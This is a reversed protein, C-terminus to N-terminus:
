TPLAPCGLLRALWEFRDPPWFAGCAQCVCGTESVKLARSRVVEGGSDRHYAHRAECRPCSTELFVRPTEALLEAAVVVWREIRGTYCEIVTCDQPRWGRGALQHLRDVTTKGDPVWSGVVRDVEILWTLADLRCPLVSRWAGRRRETTGRLAGRMANYPAPMWRYAGNISVPQPDALAHVADALRQKALPLGDESNVIAAVVRLRFRQCCRNDFFHGPPRRTAIPSIVVVAATTMPAAVVATM